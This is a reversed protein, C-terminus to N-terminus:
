FNIGWTGWLGLTRKNGTLKPRHDFGYSLVFAIGSQLSGLPFQYFYAALFSSHIFNIQDTIIPMRPSLQASSLFSADYSVEFGHQEKSQHYTVLLDVLNGPAFKAYSAINTFPVFITRPFFHICRFAGRLAKRQRFGNYPAIFDYAGDIQMGLSAHGTGFQAETFIKDTHTPLGLIGSATINIQSSFSHSYGSAILIDDFQTRNLKFNKIGALVAIPRTHVHAAAANLSVYFKPTAYILGFLGGGIKQKIGDYSKRFEEFGTMTSISPKILSVNFAQRKTTEAIKLNYVVSAQTASLESSLFTIALMKCLINM